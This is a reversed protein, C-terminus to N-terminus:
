FCDKFRTSSESLWYSGMIETAVAARRELDEDAQVRVFLVISGPDRALRLKATREGALEYDYWREAEVDTDKLNFRIADWDRDDFRYGVFGSLTEVFPKLNDELIWDSFM